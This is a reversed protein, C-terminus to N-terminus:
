PHGMKDFVTVYLITTCTHINITPFHIWDMSEEMVPINVRYICM